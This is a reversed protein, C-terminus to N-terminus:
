KQYQNELTLLFRVVGVQQLHEPLRQEPLLLKKFVLIM